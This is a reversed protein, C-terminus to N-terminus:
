VHSCFVVELKLIHVTEQSNLCTFLSKYYQESGYLISILEYEPVELFFLQNLFSNAFM